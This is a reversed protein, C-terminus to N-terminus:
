ALDHRDGVHRDVLLGRGWRLTVGGWRADGGAREQTPSTPERISLPVHQDLQLGSASRERAEKRNSLPEGRRFRHALIAKQRHLSDPALSPSLFPRNAIQADRHFKTDLGIFALACGAVM